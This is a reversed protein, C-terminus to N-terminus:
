LQRAGRGVRAPVPQVGACGRGRRPQHVGGVPLEPQSAASRSGRWSPLGMYLGCCRRTPPATPVMCALM